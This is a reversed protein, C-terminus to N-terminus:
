CNPKLREARRQRLTEVAADGDISSPAADAHGTIGGDQEESPPPTSADGSGGCAALAACVVFTELLSPNSALRSPSPMCAM